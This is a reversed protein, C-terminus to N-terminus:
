VGRKWTPSVVPCVKPAPKANEKEKRAKKKDGGDKNPQIKKKPVAKIPKVDDGSTQDNDDQLM